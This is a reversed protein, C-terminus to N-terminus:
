QLKEEYRALIQVFDWQLRMVGVVLLVLCFKITIDAIYLIQTERM